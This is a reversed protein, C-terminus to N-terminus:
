FGMRLWGFANAFADALPALGPAVDLTAAQADEPRVEKFNVVRVNAGPFQNSSQVVTM